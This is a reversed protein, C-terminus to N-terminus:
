PNIRTVVINSWSNAQLIAANLTWWAAVLANSNNATKAAQYALKLDDVNLQIEVARPQNSGYYPIPTRLWECFTHLAPTNTRFFGRDANDVHLVFDFSANAVSLTQETRVVLPDSGPKLTVCSIVATFLLWVFFGVSAGQFFHKM